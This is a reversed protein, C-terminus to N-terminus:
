LWSLHTQCGKTYEALLCTLSGFCESASRLAALVDLTMILDLLHSACITALHTDLLWLSDCNAIAIFPQKDQQMSLGSKFCQHDWTLKTKCQVAAKRKYLGFSM